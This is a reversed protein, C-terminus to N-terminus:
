LFFFCKKKGRMLRRFIQVLTTTNLAALIFLVLPYQRQREPYSGTYDPVDIGATLNVTIQCTEAHM